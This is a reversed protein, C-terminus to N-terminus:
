SAGDDADASVEFVVGHAIDPIMHESLTETADKAALGATKRKPTIFHEGDPFKVHGQFLKGKTEVWITIM